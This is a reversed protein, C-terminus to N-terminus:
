AADRVEIVLQKGVARLAAEVQDLRSAHRLDLLRDVQPMHWGLRRGLEAKRVGARRMAQYLAVKAASLAPLTVTKQGRKARSPVPIDAKDDMLAILVSELLDVARAAAEDEDDGETVGFPLDPFTVVFGGDDSELHIPYTFM